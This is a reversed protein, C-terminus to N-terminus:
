WDPLISSGVLKVWVAAVDGSAPTFVYQLLWKLYHMCPCYLRMENNSSVLPLLLLCWDRGM